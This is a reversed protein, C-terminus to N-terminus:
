GTSDVMLHSRHGSIVGPPQAHFDADVQPVVTSRGRRARDRGERGSRLLEAEVRDPDRVMDGNRRLDLRGVRVARRARERRLVGLVEPLRERDQREDGAHRLSDLKPVDTM